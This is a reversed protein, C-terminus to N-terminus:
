CSFDDSIDCCEIICSVDGMNVMDKAQNVLKDAAHKLMGCVGDPKQCMIAKLFINMNCNLSPMATYNLVSYPFFSEKKNIILIVSFNCVKVYDPISSLHAWPPSVSTFHLYFLHNDVRGVYYVLGFM